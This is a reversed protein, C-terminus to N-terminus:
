VISLVEPLAKRIKQPWNGQAPHGVTVIMVPLEDASLNFSQRVLEADFGSMACSGLKMGQAALMLTMAALSASRVAEDRQLVPSAPHDVSARAVWVDAIDQAMIQADVSPQLASALQTHAALTGCIVFAVSADEIKQQGFAAAKLRVKAEHSRAAIFRWNQLNYASPAKTAQYILSTIVDEDFPCNPQFHNISIRSEIAHQIPNTM